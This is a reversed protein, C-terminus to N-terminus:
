LRAQLTWQSGRGKLSFSLNERWIVIAAFANINFGHINEDDEQAADGIERHVFGHELAVMRDDGFRTAAEPFYQAGIAAIHQLKEHEERCHNECIHAHESCHNEIKDIRQGIARCGPHKKEVFMVLMSVSLKQRNLRADGNM